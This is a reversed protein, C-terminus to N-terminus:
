KNGKIDSVSKKHKRSSSCGRLIDKIYRLCKFAVKMTRIKIMFESLQKSCSDDTCVTFYRRREDLLHLM